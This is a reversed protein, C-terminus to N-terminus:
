SRLHSTLSHRGHDSGGAHGEAESGYCADQERDSSEEVRHMCSVATRIQHQDDGVILAVGVDAAVRVGRLHRSGMEVSEGRCANAEGIPVGTARHASRSAGADERAAVLLSETEVCGGVGAGAQGQGLDRERFQQTVRAVRGAHESLPMEAVVRREARELSSEVGEVAEKPVAAM